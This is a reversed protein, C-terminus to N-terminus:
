YGDREIKACCLRFLDNTTNNNEYQILVKRIFALNCEVNTSHINSMSHSQLLIIQWIKFTVRFLDLALISKDFSQYCKM